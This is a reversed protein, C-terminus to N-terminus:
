AQGSRPAGAWFLLVIAIVFLLLLLGVLSDILDSLDWQFIAAFILTLLLLFGLIPLILMVSYRSGPPAPRPESRPYDLDTDLPEM